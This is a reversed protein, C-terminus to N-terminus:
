FVTLLSKVLLRLRKLLEFIERRDGNAVIQTIQTLKDGPTFAGPAFFLLFAAKVGCATAGGSSM